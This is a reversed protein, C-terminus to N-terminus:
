SGFVLDDHRRSMSGVTWGGSRWAALQAATLDKTHGTCAVIGECGEPVPFTECFGPNGVIYQSACFIPMDRWIGKDMSTIAGSANRHIPAAEMGLRPNWFERAFLHAGTRKHAASSNDLWITTVGAEVWPLYSSQFRSVSLRDDPHLDVYHPDDFTQPNWQRSAGYLEVTRGDELARPIAWEILNRKWKPMTLWQSSAAREGEVMPGKGAPFHLIIRRSYTNDLLNHLYDGAKSQDLWHPHLGYPNDETVKRNSMPEIFPADENPTYSM